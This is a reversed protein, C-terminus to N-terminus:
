PLPRRAVEAADAASLGLLRLVGEAHLVDADEPLEGDLVGRMVALLAGGCAYLARESTPCTCGAPRSAAACTAVPSRSSRTASSTTPSRWRPHDAVGLRPRHPGVPRLPPPRRRDGRGPGRARRHARRDRRGPRRANRRPRGRRDSGQEDFHNYFSGFGVDARRHDRQDAHQGRGSPRVSSRAAEISSRGRRSAGAPAHPRRLRAVDHRSAPRSGSSRGPPHQQPARQATGVEIARGAPGDCAAAGADRAQRPPHRRLHARRQGLRAPRQERPRSRLARSRPVPGRRPQRRRVAARGARRRPAHRRRRRPGARRPPHLGPDALRPPRERRRRGPDARTPASAADWAEPNRALVWLLHTLRPDHHGAGARRLRDGAGPGRADHDRRPRARRVGVGGLQRPGRARGSDGPTYGLLGLSIAAAVARRSPQAARARRLDGGGLAAATAGDSRVGVLDAVVASRCTLPSTAPRRSSGGARVLREVVLEAQGDVREEIGKLAKAGLSRKARQPARRAHRRRQVAHHRAWRPQVGRNAAVGKGSVFVEDDRLAARVDEFRGIAYMRHRAAPGDDGAAPAAAARARRVPRVHDLVVGSRSHVRSCGRGSRRRGVVVHWPRQARQPRDSPAEGVRFAGVVM